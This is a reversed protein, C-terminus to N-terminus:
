ADQDSLSHFTAMRSHQVGTESLSLLLLLLRAGPLLLHLPLSHESSMSGRRHSGHELRGAGSM